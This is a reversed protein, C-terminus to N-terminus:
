VEHETIFGSSRRAFLFLNVYPQAPWNALPYSLSLITAQFLVEEHFVILGNFVGEPVGSFLPSKALM